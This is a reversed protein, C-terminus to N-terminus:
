VQLFNLSIKNNKCVKQFRIEIGIENKLYFKNERKFENGTRKGESDSSFILIRNKM